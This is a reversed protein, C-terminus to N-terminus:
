GTTGSDALFAEPNKNLVRRALSVAALTSHVDLKKLSNQIHTRVTNRSLYLQDAIEDRTMGSVLCRLVEKERKTLSALSQEYEAHHRRAVKLEALVRTLLRPPIWTEGCLTGSVVTMLYEVSEGKPVWGSIGADLAELIRDEAESATVAVIRLDPHEAAAQRVFAIGNGEELEVNLLMVDVHRQALVWQAQQITTAAFAHVGAEADLRYALAEAFSVHDDVVLIHKLDPRAMRSVSAPGLPPKVPGTM